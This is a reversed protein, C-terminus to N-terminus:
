NVPGHGAITRKLLEFDLPKTLYGDAGYEMATRYNAEDGYATIMHVPLKDYIEKIRKLLELGTMGPMNIDSLVLVIEARGGSTLYDLAEEGSLSFEFKVAGSRIEERFFQRFLWQVDEEDDVVLVRVAQDSRAPNSTM